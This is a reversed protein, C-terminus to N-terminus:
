FTLLLLSNNKFFYFCEYRKHFVQTPPKGQGAEDQSQQWEAQGSRLQRPPLRDLVRGRIAEPEPEVALPLRPVYAAPSFIDEFFYCFSSTNQSIQSIIQRQLPKGQGRVLLRRRLAVGQEPVPSPAYFDPGDPAHMSGDYGHFYIGEM